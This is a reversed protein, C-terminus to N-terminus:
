YALKGLNQLIPVVSTSFHSFHPDKNMLLVRLDIETIEVVRKQMYPRIIEAADNAIRLECPTGPTEHRLFIRIGTNVVRLRAGLSQILNPVDGTVLYIKPSSESRAM